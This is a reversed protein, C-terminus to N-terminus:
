SRSATRAWGISKPRQPRALEQSRALAVSGLRRCFKSVSEVQPTAGSGDLISRIAAVVDPVAVGQDAETAVTVAEFARGASRSATVRRPGSAERHGSFAVMEELLSQCQTLAARDREGVRGDQAYRTVAILANDALLGLRATGVVAQFEERPDGRHHSPV